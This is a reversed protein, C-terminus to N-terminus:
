RAVTPLFIHHVQAAVTLTVDVRQVANEAGAPSTVTVTVAGTYTQPTNAPQGPTITLTAPTTGSAASLGFWGADKAATWALADGGGANDLALGASSPSMQSTSLDYLFTLAAPLATMMNAVNLTITDSATAGVSAGGNNSLEVSVTRLGNGPGLTWAVDTQFAQWPGFGADTDNKLRMHTWTGAGYLYLAVSRTTTLGAERNIVLPYRGSKRGFDQVWYNGSAYGVGLEWVTTRLLNARHGSSNMWGTMVSGPSGYGVAINEAVSTRNPYFNGIRASWVCVWVVSGGSRDYTDHAKNPDPGFYSDARMDEAYYRAARDLEDVRKLPPLGGNNLREQNVLEAVQQEYTANVIPATETGCGSYAAAPGAPGLVAVALLGALTWRLGLTQLRRLM